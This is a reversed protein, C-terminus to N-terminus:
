GPTFWSSVIGRVATHRPPDEELFTRRGDMQAATRDDLDVVGWRSSFRAADRSAAVVDAWRSVCWFGRGGAAHEHWSVPEHERLWRFLEHPVAREWQGPDAIAAVPRPVAGLTSLTSLSALWHEAGDASQPVQATLYEFWMTRG